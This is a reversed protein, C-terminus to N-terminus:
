KTGYWDKKELRGEGSGAGAHMTRGGSKRPLPPAGAGGALAAGLGAPIQPMQPAAPAPAAAMPTPSTGPMQANPGVPAAGIPPQMDGQPKAGGPAIVININTKGKGVSGGDKRAIRGGKKAKDRSPDTEQSSSARKVMAGVPSLLGLAIDGGFSKGTRAAPKVMKRILAQDEAVDDHKAAGGTKLGAAKSARSQAPQFDFRSTPVDGGSAKRPRKGANPKAKQGEMAVVKGGARFARRKTPAPGTQGDDNLTEAVGYDSSDVKGGRSDALSRAKERMKRRAEKSMESM